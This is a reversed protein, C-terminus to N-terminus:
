IALITLLERPNQYHSMKQTYFRKKSDHRVGQLIDLDRWLHRVGEIRGSLVIHM